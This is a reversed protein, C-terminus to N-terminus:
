MLGQGAVFPLDKVRLKKLVDYRHMLAERSLELKSQLLRYFKDVDGKAL